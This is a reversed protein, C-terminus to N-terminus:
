REPRLSFGAKIMSAKLRELTKPDRFQYDMVMLGGTFEPWIRFVEAAEARMEEERGLEAYIVALRLHALPFKPDKKASAKLTEIAKDYQGAHHYAWGLFHEYMPKNYPSLRMARLQVLIAEDPQGYFFLHNALLYLGAANSPELEVAKRADAMAEEFRRRKAHVWSRLRYCGSYSPDMGMAKESIEATKRLAEENAQGRTWRREWFYTFGLEVWANVYKPDLGIAKRFQERARLNDEPSLRESFTRGRQLAQWAELSNTNRRTMQAQDGETLKVALAAAIDLTIEDKAKFIDDVGRDFREAWLHQGTTADILQANIQMRKGSKQIGGELVYRVGLDVSVRQVKIPKKKYTFTSNRSIVFLRPLTSLSTIIDDTLGDCLYDQNSDGTLNEFPLVAISPEDPLPLAPPQEQATGGRPAPPRLYAHWLSVAIAAIIAGSAAALLAVKWHSARSLWTWRVGPREADPLIKYVRVPEPINKVAHEGLDEYGWPLKNRIQGYVTGSVYVAGGEALQEVRAAINVGEGYIRGEEVIVDGLHIGIRFVIRRDEPLDANRTKLQEQVEVASKVANVVSPFEALLNDGSADVVRGGHRVIRESIVQLHSQITRVTGAEDAGMLRCYDRADASLIAALKRKYGDKPM